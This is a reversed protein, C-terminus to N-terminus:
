CFFDAERLMSSPSMGVIRCIAEDAMGPGLPSEDCSLLALAKKFVKAKLAGRDRITELEHREEESLKMRYIKYSM